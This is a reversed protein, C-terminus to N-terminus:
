KFEECSELYDSVDVCRIKRDLSEDYREGEVSPFRSGLELIRILLRAKQRDVMGGMEKRIPAGHLQELRERVQEESEM